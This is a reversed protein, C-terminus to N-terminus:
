ICTTAPHAAAATSAPSPRCASAAPGDGSSPSSPHACGCSCLVAARRLVMVQGFWCLAILETDAADLLIAACSLTDVARDM